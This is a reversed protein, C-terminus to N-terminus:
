YGQAVNRSPKELLQRVAAVDLRMHGAIDRPTLGQEALHRIEASLREPDAPRHRDARERYSVLEMWNALSM